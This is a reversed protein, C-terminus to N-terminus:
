KLEMFEYNKKVQKKTTRLPATILLQRKASGQVSGYVAIYGTRIDGFNKLGKINENGSKNIDIISNNYVVRTFMGMQGAQPARFTVRSPHWPGLSGPARQGKESKHSKLGIGWRKVPGQLGKGKTLGRIDVLKGKEFVEEVSIEKALHEKAFNLKEEITGRLGIESIDPIKKSVNKEKTRSQASIFFSKRLSFNTM